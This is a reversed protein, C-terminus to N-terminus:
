LGIVRGDKRTIVITASRPRGAKGYGMNAPWASELAFASAVGLAPTNEGPHQINVFMTKGDPSETVGTIECGRPGVLFRRLRAEGLLAGMFTKQTGTITGVKNNAIVPGGDGVEGPIAALMMCNSEDTMAGDDTQIWCIGSAPSFWLGDPSSFANKETLKSLNADGVDEEAGFLFIDWGFSTAEAQSGKEKFRIIHGNPNGTGMRGDLDEYSRPNAADVTTPSRLAASNNTLTFYVEGNKPNVAGWEPRDMKTAGVADAAHRVNVLVDAQNVFSYAAYGSIRPDKINLEIWEGSGDEKFKAVYLRGENLYKDGAALGRGEDSPTWKAASVFKYIYENRSDCGMYFALPKGPKPISCVAGEHAFRGMAVRKVPTANPDLPDVEVNYGFTNPENRFDEAASAAAASVNWRTFRDDTDSPTYWGQSTASTAAEAIPTRAVGYRARSAILKADIPNSGKPMQFYFAWNEECGLYTGWPTKGHGCNNITGRSTAGSPDYATVMFAQIDAQLAAPGSIKMPTQATVRRNYLSNLKYGWSNGKKTLEVVSIGHHNIEKLVELEPRVGLDWGGFQSFKKGNVGNTTQGRPHFFHADASSEHNVCLVARDTEKTSFRGKRDIYYIDMGDHHDGIRRSWDDTEAGANSYALVSSDIPDGTAHLVQYTYGAPLVVDDLLSKGVSNFGLNTEKGKGGPPGDEDGGGCAALFPVTSLAALGIGGRILNRRAPNQLTSAIIDQFHPNSSTNCVVDDDPHSM